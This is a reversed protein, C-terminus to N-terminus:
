LIVNNPKTCVFRYQHPIHSHIFFPLRTFTLVEQRGKGNVKLSYHKEGDLNSTKNSAKTGDKSLEHQHDRNLM